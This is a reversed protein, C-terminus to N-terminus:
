KKNSRSRSKRTHWREKRAWPEAGEPLPLRYHNTGHHNFTADLCKGNCPTVTLDGWKELDHTLRQVTRRSRGLAEMLSEVDTWALAQETQNYLGRIPMADMALRLLLLRHESGRKSAQLCYANYDLYEPDSVPIEVHKGPQWYHWFAHQVERGM